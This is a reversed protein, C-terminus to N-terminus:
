VHARGIGQDAGVYHEETVKVLIMKRGTKTVEMYWNHLKRIYTPLLKIQDPPLLSKGYVWKSLEADLNPIDGRELPQSLTIGAKAAFGAAHSMSPPVAIDAAFGQDTPLVKLPSILQKAQEGLQAVDRKGSASSSRTTHSSTKRM